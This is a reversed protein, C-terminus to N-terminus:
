RFNNLNNYKNRHQSQQNITQRRSELETKMLSFAPKLLTSSLLHNNIIFKIPTNECAQALEGMTTVKGAEFVRKLQVIDEFTIHSPKNQPSLHDRFIVSLFNKDLKMNLFEPTQFLLYLFFREGNVLADAPIQRTNKLNHELTRWVSSCIFQIVDEKALENAHALVMKQAFADRFEPKLLPHPLFTFYDPHILHSYENVIMDETQKSILDSKICEKLYPILHPFELTTGTAFLKEFQKLEQKPADSEKSVYNQSLDQRLLQL